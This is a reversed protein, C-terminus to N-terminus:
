QFLSQWSTFVVNDQEEREGGEVTNGEEREM